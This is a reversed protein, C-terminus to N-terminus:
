CVLQFDQIACELCDMMMMTVMCSLFLHVSCGGHKRYLGTYIGPVCLPKPTSGTCLAKAWLHLGGCKGVPMAPLVSLSEIAVELVTDPELTSCIFGLYIIACCIFGLHM